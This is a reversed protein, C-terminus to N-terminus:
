AKQATFRDEYLSLLEAAERRLNDNATFEDVARCLRQIHEQHAPTWAQRLKGLDPNFGRLWADDLQNLESSELALAHGLAEEVGVDPKDKAREAMSVHAEIAAIQAAADPPPAAAFNLLGASHELIALHQKEEDAMVKFFSRLGASLNENAAWGQYVRCVRRELSLLSDVYALKAEM